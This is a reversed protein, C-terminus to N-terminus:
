ARGLARGLARGPARGLARGVKKRDCAGKKRRTRMPTARNWKREINQCSGGHQCVERTKGKGGDEGIGHAHGRAQRDERAKAGYKVEMGASRGAGKGAAEWEARGQIGGARSGEM